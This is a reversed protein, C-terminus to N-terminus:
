TPDPLNDLEILPNEEDITADLNNWHITFFPGINVHQQRSTPQHQLFIHIAFACLAIFFVALFILISTPPNLM